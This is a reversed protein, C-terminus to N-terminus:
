FAFQGIPRTRPDREDVYRVIQSDEPNIGPLTNPDVDLYDVYHDGYPIGVTEPNKMIDKRNQEALRENILDRERQQEALLSMKANARAQVDRDLAARDLFYDEEIGVPLAKRDKSGLLGNVRNFRDVEGQDYMEDSRRDGRVTLYAQPDIENAIDVGAPLRALAEKWADMALTRGKHQRLPDLVKTTYDAAELENDRELGSTYDGLYKKIDKQATELQTKGYAEIDKKKGVATDRDKRLQSQKASMDNILNQFDSRGRMAGVDLAGMGRTYTPKQGRAALQALGEDNRTLGIDRVEVDPAAFDKVENIHGRDLTSRIQGSAAEDGDNIAKDYIPQAIGYNQNGRQEEEWGKAQSALYTSRDGLVKNIGAFAGPTATRGANAAIAARGSSSASYTPTSAKSTASFPSSLSEGAGLDGATSTKVGAPQSQQSQDPPTPQSGGFIDTSSTPGLLEDIKKYAYAM